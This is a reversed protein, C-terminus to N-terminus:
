FHGELVGGRPSIWLTARASDEPSFRPLVFLVVSAAATVGAGAWAVNTWTRLAVARDHEAQSTHGSADFEDRVHITV